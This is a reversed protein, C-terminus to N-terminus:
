RFTPCLSARSMLNSNDALWDSFDETSICNGSEIEVFFM